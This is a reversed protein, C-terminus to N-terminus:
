QLCGQVEEERGRRIEEAAARRGADDLRLTPKAQLRAERSTLLGHEILYERYELDTMADVGTSANRAM